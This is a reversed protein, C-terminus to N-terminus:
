IYHIYPITYTLSFTVFEHVTHWVSGAEVDNMLDQYHVERSM